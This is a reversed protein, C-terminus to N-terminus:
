LPDVDIGIRLQKFLGESLLQHTIQQLYEKAKVPSATNEIKLLIQRIYLNQVRSVPPEVPGLVRTGFVASMRAALEAAANKVTKAEKHRLTLEIIRVFPPYHYQMRQNLQTEYMMKYDHLLVQHVVPHQPSSTQLVVLGRKYKRGCRGSVQAILQFAREHARFDPYNFMNDANLIGVLSVNEFDLGKTVMQTGVLIDVNRQEFSHIIKEYSKKSRTTDLDMRAVRADPFLLKLEDEIQETGFGKSNLAPTRCVPCLAPIPETYGCYHCSLINFVKHVTLSVDCNQCKPV